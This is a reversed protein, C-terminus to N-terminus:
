SAVDATVSFKVADPSGGDDDWSEGGGNSSGGARTLRLRCSGDEAGWFVVRGDLRRSVSLWVPREECGEDGSEENAM